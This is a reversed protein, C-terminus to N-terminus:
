NTEQSIDNVRVSSITVGDRTPILRSIQGVRRGSATSPSESLAIVFELVAVQAPPIRLPSGVLTGIFDVATKGHATALLMTSMGTETFLREVSPGWLYVPLHPSLENILVATHEREFSPDDLFAFTEYCGRLYMRRTRPPLLELLATLLTTKGIGSKNAIVVLSRRRQLAAWIIATQDPDITGDRLLDRIGRSQSVTWGPGWWYFPEDYHLKRSM